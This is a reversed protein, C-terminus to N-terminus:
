PRLARRKGESLQTFNKRDGGEFIEVCILVCSPPPKKKNNNQRWEGLFPLVSPKPTVLTNGITNGLFIADYSDKYIYKGLPLVPLM